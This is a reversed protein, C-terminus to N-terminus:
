CSEGNDVDAVDDDEREDDGDSDPDDDEDDDGDDEAWGREKFDSYCRLCAFNGDGICAKHYVQSCNYCSVVYLPSERKDASLCDRGVGNADIAYDDENVCMVTPCMFLTGDDMQQLMAFHAAVMDQSPDFAAAKAHTNRAKLYNAANWKKDKEEAKDLEKKLELRQRYAEARAPLEANKMVVDELKFINRYFECEDGDCCEAGDDNCVHRPKCGKNEDEDEGENETSQQMEVIVEQPLEEKLSRSIEEMIQEDTSRPQDRSRYCKYICITKINNSDFFSQLLFNRWWGYEDPSGAAELDCYIAAWVYMSVQVPHVNLIQQDERDSFARLVRITLRDRHLDVNLKLRKIYSHLTRYKFAAYNSGTGASSPIVDGDENLMFRPKKFMDTFNNATIYKYARSYKSIMERLKEVNEKKSSLNKM